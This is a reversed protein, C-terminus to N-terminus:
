TLGEDNALTKVFFVPNELVTHVPCKGAITLLREKQEDTLSGEFTIRERIEHIYASDGAYAPYDERKFRQTEVEVLIGELPWNKRQAYARTTVAICGGIAGILFEMPTPGEDSGGDQILEDAIIRHNRIQIATRYSAESRVVIPAV